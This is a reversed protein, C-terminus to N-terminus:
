NEEDKYNNPTFFQNMIVDFFIIFLLFLIAIIIFVITWVGFKNDINKPTEYINEPLDPLDRYKYLKPNYNTEGPNIEFLKNTFSKAQGSM